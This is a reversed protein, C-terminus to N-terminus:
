NQDLKVRGIYLAQATTTLTTLSTEIGLDSTGSPLNSTKSVQPTTAGNVTFRVTGATSFDIKLTYTTNASVTVGTDTASATTGDSTVAQWTTNGLATDYGFAMMPITNLGAISGIASLDASTLGIFHRQNTVASDTRVVVTFVPGFNPRVTVYPGSIGVADGTTAASLFKLMMRAGDATPAASVTGATSPSPLENVNFFTDTTQLVAYEGVARTAGGSASTTQISGDPFVYGGSQSEVKGNAQLVSSNGSATNTGVMLIHSTNNWHLQADNSAFVGAGDSFQVAGSVGSPSTPSAATTQITSDPFRFGGTKSEIVGNVQLLAFGDDTTAGILVKQGSTVRMAETLGTGTSRTIIRAFSASNGSTTNEKGWTIAGAVFRTPTADNYLGASVGVEPSSGFATTDNLQLLSRVIGTTTPTGVATITGSVQLRGVTDDVATGILMNGSANIRMRETTFTPGSVAGTPRTSVSFYSGADEDTANQKGFLVTGFYTTATDAAHYQGGFVLGAKPSMNYATANEFVMGLVSDTAGMGNATTDNFSLGEVLLPGKTASTSNVVLRLNTTDWFLAATDVLSTSTAAYPIRGATLGTVTGVAATTQVTSDPFRFGGTKSEVVGNAQIVGFGDDTTTGVLLNANQVIVDSTTANGTISFRKAAASSATKTFFAWGYLGDDQISRFNGTDVAFGISGDSILITSKPTTWSTNKAELKIGYATTGVALTPLSGFSTNTGIITVANAASTDAASDFVQLLETSGKIDLIASSSATGVLLQGTGTVRAVETSGDGKIVFSSTTADLQAILKSAQFGFGSFLSGNNFVAVKVDALASGLDLRYLPSTNGLGLRHNTSDFHIGGNDSSFGASGNSFQVAGSVGSSAASTTQTTADPFVFGGSKSEIAGNVQLFALTDDTITGLLIRGTGSPVIALNVNTGTTEITVAGSSTGTLLIKQALASGVLLAHSVQAQGTSGTNLLVNQGAVTHLEAGGSGDDTLYNTGAANLNFKTGTFAGTNTISATKTAGGNIIDLTATGLDWFFNGPTFPSSGGSNVLGLTGKLTNADNYFRIGPTGTASSSRIAVVATAESSGLEVPQTGAILGVKIRNNTADWLLASDDALTTSGTAYAIRGATMGSISGGGGGSATTQISGDPFRFGGTKSEVIGNVQLLAFTDDVIAGILVNGTYHLVMRATSTSDLFTLNGVDAAASEGVAKISYSNATFPDVGDFWSYQFKIVTSDKIPTGINAVGVPRFEMAPFVWAVGTDAIDVSDTWYALYPTTGGGGISSGGSAATSQTTGDPFRFGGTSSEVVGVVRLKVSNPNTTGGIIVSGSSAVRMQETLSGAAPRTYIAAYGADNSDTANEKGGGVAALAEIDGATDIKTAFAITAKPSSGFATFNNALFALTQTAGDTIPTAYIDLPHGPTLKGIGLNGALYTDGSVHLRQSPTTGIGVNGLSDIRMREIPTTTAAPTTAFTLYGPANGPAFVGDGWAKILAAAGQTTADLQGRFVIEGIPDDIGIATPSAFTGKARELAIQSRDSTTNSFARMKFQSTSTNAGLLDLTVTPANTGLGLRKTSNDWFFKTADAAFSTGNAFQVAGTGGAANSSSAATTQTTNDPFTFGGSTSKVIGVVTLMGSNDLQMRQTPAFSNGITLGGDTFFRLASSSYGLAGSNTSKAIWTSAILAAGGIMLLEDDGTSQITGGGVGFSSTVRIGYTSAAHHFGFHSGDWDATTNDITQTDSWYPIRTAIGGNLTGGPAVASTQISNDPFKFGGSTSWIVNNVTLAGSQQLTAITTSSGDIFHLDFGGPLAIYSSNYNPSSAGTNGVGIEMMPTNLADYFKISAYGSLHTNRIGMTVLAESSAWEAAHAPTYGQGLYIRHNVPNYRLFADGAAELSANAWLIDQFATGPALSGGGGGGASGGGASAHWQVGDNDISLVAWQSGLTVTTGDQYLDSGATQVNVVNASSDIKRITVLRGANTAILPLTITKPGSTADVNVAETQADISYNTSVTKSIVFRSGKFNSTLPSNM